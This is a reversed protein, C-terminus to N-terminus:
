FRSQDVSITEGNAADDPVEDPVENPQENENGDVGDDFM